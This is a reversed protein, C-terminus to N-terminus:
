KLKNLNYEASATGEEMRRCITFDIYIYIYIFKRDQKSNIIPHYRLFLKRLVVIGIMFVEIKQGKWQTGRSQAGM